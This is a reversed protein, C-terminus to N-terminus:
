ITEKRLNYRLCWAKYVSETIDGNLYATKIEMAEETDQGLTYGGFDSLTKRGEKIARTQAKTLKAMRAKYDRMSLSAIIKDIANTNKMDEGILDLSYHRTEEETLERDYALIDHYKGSTDDQREIFGDMPQCGISFGRIRMGYKYM